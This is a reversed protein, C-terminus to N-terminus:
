AKAPRGRKKPAPPEPDVQGNDPPDLPGWILAHPSDAWGDGAEAVDRPTKLLRSEVGGQGDARYVWTPLTM